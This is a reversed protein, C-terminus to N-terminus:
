TSIPTYPSVFCRSGCTYRRPLTSSCCVMLPSTNALTLLRKATVTVLIIDQKPRTYGLQLLALVTLRSHLNDRYTERRQESSPARLGNNPPSPPGDPIGEDAAHRGYM